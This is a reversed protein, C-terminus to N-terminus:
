PGPCVNFVGPTGRDKLHCAQEGAGVDECVESAICAPLGVGCKANTSGSSAVYAGYACTGSSASQWCTAADNAATDYCSGTLMMAYGQGYPFTSDYVVEDIVKGAPNSLIVEDGGNSLAFGSGAPNDAMGYVVNVDNNTALDIRQGIVAYGGAPITLALAGPTISANGGVFAGGNKCYPGNAVSWTGATVAVTNGKADVPATGSGDNLALSVLDGKWPASWTVQPGIPRRMAAGFGSSVQVSAASGKFPHLLGGTGADQAGGITFVAANQGTPWGGVSVQLVSAGNLQAYLKGNDYTLALHFWQGIVADALDFAAAGVFVRLKGGQVRAGFATDGAIGFSFLDSCASVGGVTPCTGSGYLDDLEFWGHITLNKGFPLTSAPTLTAVSTAGDFQLSTCGGEVHCTADCGDGDKTNHDDCEEGFESLGDGCAAAIVHLDGTTDTLKWGTLDIAKATPNYVELWEGAIDEVADPNIQLETLLLTGDPALKVEIHCQADCGDGPATNGDDCQEGLNQQVIKDGCYPKVVCVGTQCWETTVDDCPTGDAVNGGGNVCMNACTVNLKGPTGFDGASGLWKYKGPCYSTALDNDTANLHTPDLSVSKGDQIDFGAATPTQKVYKVDDIEVGNWALDIADATNALTFDAYVYDVPVGGNKTKDGNIGLVRFGKAPVLFPVGPSIIHKQTLDDHLNWGSIDIAQDTSNFLELWEGVSDTVAGPKVMFETIVIQGASFSEVQCTASCGDGSLKNGDDCVEYVDVKGNGCTASDCFDGYGNGNSDAQDSNAILPCNDCVDGVGDHDGDLQTINAIGPCNDCVDGLGDGDSDKQDANSDFPCNDVENKAGDGDKDGGSPICTTNTKDPTGLDSSTPDADNIAADAQCWFKAFDNSEVSQYLPDLQLAKGSVPAPTQVGYHVSDIVASGHLLALTDDADDLTFTVPWAWDIQAGGNYLKDTSGGLALRTGPAMTLTPLTVQGAKGSKLVWGTLDLTKASGNYLELWEGPQSDANYPIAMIEAIVLEVPVIAAVKCDTTCGDDNDSNGDDCQESTVTQNGCGPSPGSGPYKADLEGDGCCAPDCADGKGDGDTDLQDSNAVAACNDCADGVKDGDSDKQDPNALAPCNDKGDVIGDGDTDVPKPCSGNAAGPTGLDGSGFPTTGNCWFDSNDNDTANAHGPDLSWSKGDTPLLSADWAMTDQLTSGFGVANHLALGGSANALKLDDGYEYDCKVGGNTATDANRCLTVVAGPAVALGCAFVTHSLGDATSLYLGTLPITTSSANYLEVWEGLADAVAKPKILLENVVLSGAALSTPLTGCGADVKVDPAQTDADQTDPADPADAIAADTAADKGADADLKAVDQGSGDTPTVADGNQVDCKANGECNGAGVDAVDDGGGGPAAAQGCAVATLACLVLVNLRNFRMM